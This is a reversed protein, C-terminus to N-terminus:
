WIDVAYGCYGCVAVAEVTRKEFNKAFLAVLTGPWPLPCPHCLGRSIRGRRDSLHTALGQGSPESLGRVDCHPIEKTRRRDCRDSAEIRHRGKSETILYILHLFIQWERSCELRLTYCQYFKLPTHKLSSKKYAFIAVSYPRISVVSSVPTRAFKLM